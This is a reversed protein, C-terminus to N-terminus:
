LCSSESFRNRDDVAGRGIIGFKKESIENGLFIKWGIALINRGAGKHYNELYLLYGLLQTTSIGEEIAWM